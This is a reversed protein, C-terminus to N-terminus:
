FLRSWQLDGDGDPAYVNTLYASPTLGYYLGDITGGTVHVRGHKDLAIATAAWERGSPVRGSQSQTWLTSGDQKYATVAFFDGYANWLQGAAYISGDAGTKISVPSFGVVGNAFVFPKRYLWLPSGTSDYKAMFTAFGDIGLRSDGASGIVIVNGEPDVTLTAGAYNAVTAGSSSGGGGGGGGGPPAGDLPRLTRAAGELAGSVSGPPSYRQVWLQAGAPNFKVTTADAYSCYESVAGDGPFGSPDPFFQVTLPTTCSSGTVYLNGASDAIAQNAQSAFTPATEYSATWELVHDSTYKRVQYQMDSCLSAGYSLATPDLQTCVTGVIYLHVSGGSNVLVVEPAFQGNPQAPGAYRDQWVQHGTQGDYKVTVMYSRPPPLAPSSQPTATGTVYVDGNEDVAISRADDLQDGPPIYTSVWQQTGQADYKVTTFAYKIQFRWYQQDTGDVGHLWERGTVYVNGRKDVAMANAYDFCSYVGPYTKSWLVNGQPDYKLTAFESGLEIGKRYDNVRKGGTVITNGKEDVVISTATTVNFGDDLCANHVELGGGEPLPIAKGSALSSHLPDLPHWTGLPLPPMTLRQATAGHAAPVAAEGPLAGAFTSLVTCLLWLPKRWRATSAERPTPAFRSRARRIFSTM